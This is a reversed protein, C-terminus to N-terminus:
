ADQVTAHNFTVTMCIMSKSMFRFEGVTYANGRLFQALTRILPPMWGLSLSVILIELDSEAHIGPSAGDTGIWGLLPGPIIFRTALVRVGKGEEV